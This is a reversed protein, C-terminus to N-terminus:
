LKVRLQIAINRPQEKSFQYLAPIVVITRDTLNKGILDLSWRGDQPGFSLRGDWRVYGAVRDFSDGSATDYSTTFYPDVETTLNFDGPLLIRYAATLSGSWKPAYPTAQGSLNNVPPVGAPFQALCYSTGAGGTADVPTSCFGQLTTQNANQYSVFYAKLYTVNAGLRLASVPVWQWELEMGQSRSKAANALEGLYGCGGLNCGYINTSVQLDTYDARFIDLNLLVTDNLWKSKLGVEYANVHEPGFEGVHSFDYVDAGNFGGSLFGRDYRLYGMVDPNFRYQVRASPMLAHNSQSLRQSTGQAVSFSSALLQQVPQPDEVFGGYLTTSTGELVHANYNKDVQSGRMSASLALRDTANWTLSGFVSYIHEKQLIGQRFALPLYPLVPAFAPDSQLLSNLLTDTTVQDYSLRDDQFYAGALYEIPRGTPSAVRLEQSFQHFHERWEAQLYPITLGSANGDLVFDYYSYGTVFTFTHNWHRYNLTLVGEDTSLQNQEGPLLAVHSNNFGFPVGQAQLTDCPVYLGWGTGFPPRPCEGWQLPEDYPTGETKHHSGELKLTADLAEMPTYVLTLRGALNHIRPVHEGSNVDNLWGRENGDATAAFRAQLTDTIPGGVAGELAYQEFMGGLARIYGDFTDSPKKSVINLAGAIANNGFFTSQPGKLIEIRDLDLFTAASMRSRGRYIDDAFMAVAQDFGPNSGSTGIGRMSLSNSKADTAIHVAPLTRALDTLLNQNQEELQASSIVQVSVPVNQLNESRKQATVIIEELKGQQASRGEASDVATTTTAVGPESEGYTTLPVLLAVLVIASQLVLYRCM